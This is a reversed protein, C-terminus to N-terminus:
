EIIYAKNIYDLKPYNKRLYKNGYKNISDQKDDLESGYGEYFMEVVEMGSTIQAVVPFGKVGMFSITDLRPSNNNLNIFLQTSRSEKGGRAFSITGKLNEKKLPEDPLSFKEWAHNVTSDNHIGFQAIYNPIVRFLAIDTYYGSKILQYLREVARPSWEKRSEIEFNGQSTEFRARFYEPSEIQTWKIPYNTKCSSILLSLIIIIKVTIKFRNTFIFNKM